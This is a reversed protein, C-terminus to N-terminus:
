MALEWQERNSDDPVGNALNLTGDGNMRSNNLVTAIENFSSKVKAKAKERALRDVSKFEDTLAYLLAVNEMFEVPHERQYKQLATMYNGSEDRYVPKTISDYARQRVSKDVKVGDYFSDRDLIHKKLSAYQKEEEAKQQKQRSDLENQYNEVQTRYFDKCSEFADKADDIDTGDDISRQVLRVAKEHAFGRNVYDQYMVQKRLKEGDEGEKVLTDFTDKRELFQSLNLAQQYAQVEESTAGGNLANEIRKQREDLMGTVKDEFLKELAEENLVGSLAEDSLDPFVGKDRLIRAISSFLNTQPTGSGDSSEPTERNGGTNEESGVSEPQNGLLDSFDVEATETTENSNDLTQGTDEEAPEAAEAAEGDQASFMKNVEDVGLINDLGIGDM